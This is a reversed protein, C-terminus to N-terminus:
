GRAAASPLATAGMQRICERLGERLNRLTAVASLDVGIEVLTQAVAPRIGTIVCKSGLLQVAQVMKIFHDATRTDVVEVGTIDLIVFRSQRSTIETLLREMIEASRRSDVVGIVPLALVNDWVQLIPTSLEHIMMRQREILELKQDLERNATQLADVSTSIRGVTENVTRALSQM